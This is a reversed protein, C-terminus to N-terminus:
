GDARGVDRDRGVVVVIVVYPVAGHELLFLSRSLGSVVWRVRDDHRTVFM